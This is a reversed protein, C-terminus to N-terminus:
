SARQRAQAHNQQYGFSEALTAQLDFVLVARRRAALLHLRARITRLLRESARSNGRGERETLLGREFLEKGAIAM